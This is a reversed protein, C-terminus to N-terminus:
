ENKLASKGVDMAATVVDTKGGGQEFNRELASASRHNGLLTQLATPARKDANLGIM